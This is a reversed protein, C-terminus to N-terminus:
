KDIVQYTIFRIKIKRYASIKQKKIENLANYMAKMSKYVLDGKIVMTAFRDYKQSRVIITNSCYELM